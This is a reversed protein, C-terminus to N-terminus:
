KQHTPSVPKGAALHWGGSAKLGANPTQSVIPTVDHKGHGGLGGTTVIATLKSIQLKRFNLVIKQRKLNTIGRVFIALTMENTM